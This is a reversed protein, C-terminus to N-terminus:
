PSSASPGGHGRRPAFGAPLRSPASLLWASGTALPFCARWGTAGLQDARQQAPARLRALRPEVVDRRGRAAGGRREDAPQGGGHAGARLAEAGGARHLARVRGQQRGRVARRVPGRPEAADRSRRGRRDRRPRGGRRARPLRPGAGRARPGARANRRPRERAARGHPADLLRHRNGGRARGPRACPLAGSAAPRDGLPRDPGLRAGRAGGDRADAGLAGPSAGAFITRGGRRPHANALCPVRSAMAPSTSAIRIEGSCSFSGSGTSLM